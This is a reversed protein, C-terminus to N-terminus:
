YQFGVQPDGYLGMKMAFVGRSELYHNFRQM